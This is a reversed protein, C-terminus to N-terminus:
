TGDGSPEEYLEKLRKPRDIGFYEEIWNSTRHVALGMESLLTEVPPIVFSDFSVIILFPSLFPRDNFLTEM